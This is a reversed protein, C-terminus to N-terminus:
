SKPICIRFKSGKGPTSEIELDGHHAQVVERAITLGLGMGDSFRRASKGRYFPTFVQEQEALSIGPGSDEVQIRAEKEVAGASVTVQGGNPTYRVANSLLNGLAQAMRDPDMTVVPLDEPFDTTFTLGKEQAAERWPSCVRPLWENLDVPTLFLELAGMVQDHLQALDEVLKRMRHIEDDMGALLERRLQPDEDAGTSLAQVASQMAGLPRGLEHVLNALLRRRGEELSKLRATLSNFSKALLQVEAPGEEQLPAQQQGNALEDVAQTTRRLPKVVQNGLVWGLLVGLLLGGILVAVTIERLQAYRSQVSALPNLVRVFGALRGYSVVPVTVDTITGSSMTIEAHKGGSFFKQMDPTLVRQGLKSQDSSESSAVLRGQSDIMVVKANMSTSISNVFEQARTGDFWIEVYNGAIESILVAQGTLENTFNSLYVQSQLLYLFIAGIVPIIVLVPFIHSFILRARLTRFM